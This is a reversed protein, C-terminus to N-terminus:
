KKKIYCLPYKCTAPTVYDCDEDHGIRCKQKDGIKEIDFDDPAKKDFLCVSKVLCKSEKIVGEVWGYRTAEPYIVQKLVTRNSRILAALAYVSTFTPHRSDLISFLISKAHQSHGEM